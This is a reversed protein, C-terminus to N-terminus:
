PTAEKKEKDHGVHFQGCNGCVYVGLADANVCDPALRISALQAEASARTLHGVKRCPRPAVHPFLRRLEDLLTGM